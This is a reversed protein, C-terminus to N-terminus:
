WVFVGGTRHRSIECAKLRQNIEPKKRAAESSTRCPLRFTTSCCHCRAKDLGVENIERTKLEITGTLRPTRSTLTSGTIRYRAGQTQTLGPLLCICVKVNQGSFNSCPTDAQLLLAICHFPCSLSHGLRASYVGVGTPTPMSSRSLSGEGNTSVARVGSCKSCHSATARIPSCCQPCLQWELDAVRSPTQMDAARPRVSLGPSLASGALGDSSFSSARSPYAGDTQPHYVMSAGYSFDGPLIKSRSPARKDDGAKFAM